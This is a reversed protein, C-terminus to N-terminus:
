LLACCEKTEVINLKMALAAMQATRSPTVIQNIGSMIAMLDLEKRYNGRPRMCGLNLSTNPFEERARCLYMGIESLNPPSVKEFETGKTPILVTFTLAKLDEGKFFDLIDYEGRFEGGFLGLCIHPVVTNYKKLLKYTKIYDKPSRDLKYVDNITRKDLVFDFSVVDLYPSLAKISAEDILGLHANIKFGQKKFKKLLELQTTMDVFGDPTCGGSLLISKPKKKSIKEDYNLLNAMNGLYKGNCHSCALICSSGTISLPLTKEPWSFYIDNGFVEKKLEFSKKLRFDLM